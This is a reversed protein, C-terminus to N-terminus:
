QKGRVRRRGESRVLLLSLLIIAKNPFKYTMHHGLGLGEGGGEVGLSSCIIVLSYFLKGCFLLVIEVKIDWAVGGM